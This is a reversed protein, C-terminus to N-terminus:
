RCMSSATPSPLPGATRRGPHQPAVTDLAMRSPLIPEPWNTENWGLGMIWQGPPHKRIARGVRTLLDALSTLDELKLSQRKLAWEHFHIHSDIFGPVVLHGELDSKGTDPGSLSLIERNDSLAIIEGQRIALAQVTSTPFIQTTIHGNFLITDPIATITKM